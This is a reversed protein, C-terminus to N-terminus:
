EIKEKRFLFFQDKKLAKKMLKEPAEDVNRWIGSPCRIELIGKDLYKLVQKKSLMKDAPQIDMDSVDIDKMYFVTQCCGETSCWNPFGDLTYHVIKKRPYEVAFVYFGDIRQKKPLVMSVTGKGYILSFVEQDVKVKSFYHM